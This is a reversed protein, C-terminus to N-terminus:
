ERAVRPKKKPKPPEMNHAEALVCLAQEITPQAIVNDPVLFRWAPVGISAGLKDLTEFQPETRQTEIAMITTVSFGAREALESQTWGKAKRFAALNEALIQGIIGM